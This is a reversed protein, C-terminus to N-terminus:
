ANNGSGPLKHPTTMTPKNSSAPWNLITLGPIGCVAPNEGPHSHNSQSMTLVPIWEHNPLGVRHRPGRIDWSVLSQEGHERRVRQREPVDSDYNLPVIDAPTRPTRSSLTPRESFLDLDVIPLVGFVVTFYSAIDFLLRLFDRFGFLGLFIHQAEPAM